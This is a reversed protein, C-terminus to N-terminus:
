DLLFADLPSGVLPVLDYELVGEADGSHGMLVALCDSCTLMLSPAGLAETANWITIPREPLENVLTGFRKLDVVVDLIIGLYELGEKVTHKEFQVSNSTPLRLLRLLTSLAEAQGRFRPGKNLGKIAFLWVEDTAIAWPEGQPDVVTFPRRYEPKTKGSFLALNRM